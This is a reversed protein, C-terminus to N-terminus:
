EEYPLKSRSIRGANVLNSHRKRGLYGDNIASPEQIRCRVLTVYSDNRKVDSEFRISECLLIMQWIPM